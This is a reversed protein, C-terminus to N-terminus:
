RRKLFKEPPEENDSSSAEFFLLPKSADFNEVSRADLDILDDSKIDSKTVAQAAPFRKEPPQWSSHASSRATTSSTQPVVLDNYWVPDCIM